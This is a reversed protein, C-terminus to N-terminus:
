HFHKGLPLVNSAVNSGEWCVVMICQEETEGLTTTHNGWAMKKTLAHPRLLRLM